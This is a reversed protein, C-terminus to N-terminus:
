SELYEFNELTWSDFPQSDGFYRHELSVLLADHEAGVMMPFRKEDPPSCASEGCIYLFVPGQNEKTFYKDNYWYRQKYTRDDKDNFHDIQNDFYYTTYDDM